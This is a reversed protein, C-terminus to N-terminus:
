NSRHTIFKEWLKDKAKFFFVLVAITVVFLIGLIIPHEEFQTTIADFAHIGFYGIWLYFLNRVIAGLFTMLIFSKPNYKIAGAVVTVVSTPVVPVARSLFLLVDDWKSKDLIKGIREISEHNVGFYKGFRGVVVDEAKDVVVYIFYSSATKAAAALLVILGVHLTSLNQAKAIAAATTMVFPSPIPAIIEELFGAVVVFVELSVSTALSSLWQILPEFYKEM